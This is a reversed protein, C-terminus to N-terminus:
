TRMPKLTVSTTLQLLMLNKTVGQKLFHECCMAGSVGKKVSKVVNEVNFGFHEFVQDAPGSEGFTDLCVMASRSGAYKYWGGSVGAEIVVRSAVSAPLVSERYSETQRDFVDTSPMSVVRVNINQDALKAQAEVALQVESGTAIILAQPKDCDVLVYGGLNWQM